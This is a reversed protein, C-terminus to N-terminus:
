PSHCSRPMSHCDGVWWLPPARCESAQQFLSDLSHSTWYASRGLKDTAKGDPEDCGGAQNSQQDPAPPAPKPPIGPCQQRDTEPEKTDGSESAGAREALRQDSFGQPECRHCDCHGKAARNSM